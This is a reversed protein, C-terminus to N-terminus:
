PTQSSTPSLLKAFGDKYRISDLVSHVNKLEERLIQRYKEPEMEIAKALNSIAEEPKNRKAYLVGLRFYSPARAQGLAITKEYALVAEDEQSLKERVV